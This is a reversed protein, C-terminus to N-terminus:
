MLFAVLFIWTWFIISAARLQLLKKEDTARLSLAEVGVLLAMVAMNSLFKVSRLLTYSDAAFLVVGSLAVGIIGAVTLWRSGRLVDLRPAAEPYRWMYFVSASWTYAGVIGLVAFIIHAVLVGKM